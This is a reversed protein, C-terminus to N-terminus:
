QKKQNKLSTTPQVYNSYRRGGEKLIRGQRRSLKGLLNHIKNLKQKETLVEPLKDLLLQNIDQRTVPQHTRVLEVIWDQYHQDDLGRDRIHRAKEGTAAAIHAAVVLNPYRGEVLKATKLRRNEEKSIGQRKQVRDLLIITELNLDTRRMLLRTYRENLIRGAITVAVRDPQSLNYVLHRNFRFVPNYRQSTRSALDNMPGEGWPVLGKDDSPTLPLHSGALM